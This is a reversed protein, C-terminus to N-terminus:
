PLGTYAWVLRRSSSLLLGSDPCFRIIKRSVWLVKPGRPPAHPLPRELTSSAHLVAFSSFVLLPPPFVLWSCDKPPFLMFLFEGIVTRAPGHLRDSFEHCRSRRCRCPFIFPHLSQHLVLVLPFLCGRCFLPPDKWRAMV